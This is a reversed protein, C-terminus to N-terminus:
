RPIPIDGPAGWQVPASGNRITWVGTFNNWVALEASVCSALSTEIDCAPNATGDYDAPVPIDGLAGGWLQTVVGGSSKSITWTGGPARNLANLPQLKPSFTALDDKFDGDYDAIVPTAGGALTASKKWPVPNLAGTLVSMNGTIQDYTGPDDRGDGDVDGVVPTGPGIGSSSLNITRAPGCSDNHVLVSNQSPRYVAFDTEGDGDYDGPLPVDTSVGM